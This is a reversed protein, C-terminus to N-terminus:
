YRPDLLFIARGGSVESIDSCDVVNDPFVSTAKFQVVYNESNM